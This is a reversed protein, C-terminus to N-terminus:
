NRLAFSHAFHKSVKDQWWIDRSGGASPFTRFIPCWCIALRCRRDQDPQCGFEMCVAQVSQSMVLRGLGGGVSTCAQYRLLLIHCVELYCSADVNCLCLTPASGPQAPLEAVHKLVLLHPCRLNGASGQVKLEAWGRLCSRAFSLVRSAKLRLWMATPCSM